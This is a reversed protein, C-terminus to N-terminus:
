EAAEIEMQLKGRGEVVIHEGTVKLLTVSDDKREREPTMKERMVSDPRIPMYLDNM